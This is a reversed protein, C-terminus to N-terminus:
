NSQMHGAPRLKGIFKKYIYIKINSKFVQCQIMNKSAANLNQLLKEGHLINIYKRHEVHKKM